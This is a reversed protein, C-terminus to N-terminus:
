WNKRWGAIIISKENTVEVPVAESLMAKIKEDNEEKELLYDGYDPLQKKPDDNKAQKMCSALAMRVWKTAESKTFNSKDLIMQVCENMLKREIAGM